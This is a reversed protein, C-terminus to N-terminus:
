KSIIIKDKQCIQWDQTWKEGGQGLNKQYELRRQHEKALEAERKQEEQAKIIMKPLTWHSLKRNQAQTQLTRRMVQTRARILTKKLKQGIIQQPINQIHIWDGDVVGEM